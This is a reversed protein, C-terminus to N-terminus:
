LHARGIQMSYVGPPLTRGQPIVRVKEEIKKAEFEAKKVDIKKDAGVLQWRDESQLAWKALNAKTKDPSKAIEALTKRGSPGFDFAMAAWDFKEVPTAGSKLRSIPLACTQVGTVLACRTHRRRSSLFLCYWCM